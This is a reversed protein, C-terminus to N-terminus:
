SLVCNHSVLTTTANGKDHQVQPAQAAIVLVAPVESADPAFEGAVSGIGSM